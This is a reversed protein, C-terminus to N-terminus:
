DNGETNVVETRFRSPGYKIVAFSVFFGSLMLGIGWVWDQNQFFSMSIASPIGLVFGLSAVILIARKRSVGADMFIRTALEIMAILSTLAAFTLVLIFIATFFSGLPMQKFLQLIWIFSLGTNAPESEKLADEPVLGLLPALAFVAPFISLGVLLSALSNGLGTIFSNLVIDEKERLYVAYTLILDWDAGTSWACQTLAELWVQYNTLAGWYPNFLSNLGEIARTFNFCSRCIFGIFHYAFTNM